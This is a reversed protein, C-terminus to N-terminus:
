GDGFRADGEFAAENGVADSVGFRHLLGGDSCRYKLAPQLQPIEWRYGLDKPPQPKQQAIGLSVHGLFVL